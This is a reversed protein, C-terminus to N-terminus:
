AAGIIEVSAPGGPGPPKPPKVRAAVASLQVVAPDHLPEESEQEPEACQAEPCTQQKANWCPSPPAPTPPKPAGMAKLAWHASLQGLLSM